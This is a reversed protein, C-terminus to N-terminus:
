KPWVKKGKNYIEGGKIASSIGGVIGGVEIRGSYMKFGTDSGVDGRVSIRGNELWGGTREGANGDVILEGGKMGWCAEDGVNGRVIIKGDAMWNGINNGANGNVEVTGAFMRECVNNGVNGNITVKKDEELNFGVYDLPSGIILNFEKEASNQILATLLLGARISFQPDGGHRSELSPYVKQLQESNVNLGEAEFTVDNHYDWFGAETPDVSVGERLDYLRLAKEVLPDKLNPLNGSRQGGELRLKVIKTGTM